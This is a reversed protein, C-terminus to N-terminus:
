SLEETGTPLLGRPVPGGDVATWQGAGALVDCTAMLWDLSLNSGRQRFGTVAVPNGSRVFAWPAFPVEPLVRCTRTLPNIVCYHNDEPARDNVHTRENSLCVLGDAAAM